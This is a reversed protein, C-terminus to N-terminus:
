EEEEYLLEEDEVFLHQKKHCKDLLFVLLEETSIDLIEIVEDPDFRAVIYEQVEKKTLM